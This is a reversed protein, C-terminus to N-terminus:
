PTYPVPLSPIFPVHLWLVMFFLTFMGAFVTLCYITLAVRDKKIKIEILILSSLLLFLITYRLWKMHGWRLTAVLPGPPELQLEDLVFREYSSPPKVKGYFPNEVWEVDRDRKILLAPFLCPLLISIVALLLCAIRMPRGLRSAQDSNETELPEIM